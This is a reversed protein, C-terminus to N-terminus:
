KVKQPAADMHRDGAENRGNDSHRSASGFAATRGQLFKVLVGKV